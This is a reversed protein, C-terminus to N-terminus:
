PLLERGDGVDEEADPDKEKWGSWTFRSPDRDIGVSRGPIMESASDIPAARTVPLTTFRSSEMTMGVSRGSIRDSASDMPEASTVAKLRLSGNGNGVLRGPIIESASDIPESSAPAAFKFRPKEVRVLEGATEEVAM